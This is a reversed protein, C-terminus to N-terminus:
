RRELDHVQVFEVGLENRRVGVVADSTVRIPELDDPVAVRGAPEGEPTLIRWEGGSGPRSLGGATLRLSHADPDYPQIWVFGEDDVLFGWFASVHDRVEHAEQRRRVAEAQDPGADEVEAEVVRAFAEEPPIREEPEWVLTRRRDGEPGYVRIEPTTTEAVYLEDGHLAFLARPSLPDPGSFLPTRYRALGEVRAVVGLDEGSRDYRHVAMEDRRGWGWFLLTAVAWGDGWTGPVPLQASRVGKLKVERYTGDPFFRVVRRLSGDYAEVTDGRAWAASLSTFEGPGQGTGGLSRLLEGDPGFVRIADAGSVPVVLQGDDMLFPTRVRHFQQATDGEVTGVVLRPEPDAARPTGPPADPAVGPGGGDDGGCAVAAAAAAACILASLLRPRDAAGPAADTSRSSARSPTRSRVTPTM